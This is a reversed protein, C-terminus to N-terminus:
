SGTITVNNLQIEVGDYGGANKIMITTVEEVSGIASLTPKQWAQKASMPERKDM